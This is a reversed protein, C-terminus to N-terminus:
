QNCNEKAFKTVSIYVIYQISFTIHRTFINAIFCSIDVINTARSELTACGDNASCFLKEEGDPHDGVEDRGPNDPTDTCNDPHTQATETASGERWGIRRPSLDAGHRVLGHGLTTGASAPQAAARYGGM